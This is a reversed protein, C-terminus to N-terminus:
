GDFINGNAEWLVCKCIGRRAEQSKSSVDSSSKGAGSIADADTEVAFGAEDRMAAPMFHTACMHDASAMAM